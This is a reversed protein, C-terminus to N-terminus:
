RAEAFVLRGGFADAEKIHFRAVNGLERQPKRPDLKVKHESGTEDLIVVCVGQDRHIWKVITGAM